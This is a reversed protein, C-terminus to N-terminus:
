IDNPNTKFDMVMVLISHVRRPPLLPRSRFYNTCYKPFLHIKQKAGSVQCVVREYKANMSTAYIIIIIIIDNCHHMYNSCIVYLSSCGQKPHRLVLRIRNCSDFCRARRLVRICTLLRLRRCRFSGYSKSYSFVTFVRISAPFDVPSEGHWCSYTFATRM